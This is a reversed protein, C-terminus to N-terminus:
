TPKDRKLASQWARRTRNETEVARDYRRQLGERYTAAAQHAVSYAALESDFIDGSNVKVPIRNHCMWYCSMGGYEWRSAHVSNPAPIPELEIEIIEYDPLVKWARM